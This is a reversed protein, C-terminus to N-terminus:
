RAAGATSQIGTMFGHLFQNLGVVIVAIVLCFLFSLMPITYLRLFFATVGSKMHSTSRWLAYHVFAAILVPPSMILWIWWPTGKGSALPLLAVMVGMSLLSLAFALWVNWRGQRAMHFIVGQTGMLKWLKKVARSQELPEVFSAKLRKMRRRYHKKFDM